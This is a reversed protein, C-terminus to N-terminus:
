SRGDENGAAQKQGKPMLIKSCKSSCGKGIMHRYGAFIQQIFQRNPRHILLIVGVGRLNEILM